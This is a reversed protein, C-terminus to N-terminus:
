CRLVKILDEWTILESAGKRKNNRIFAAISPHHHLSRRDAQCLPPSHAATVNGRVPELAQCSRIRGWGGFPRKLPSTEDEGADCSRRSVSATSKDRRGGGGGGGLGEVREQQGHTKM